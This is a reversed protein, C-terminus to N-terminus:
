SLLDRAVRALRQAACALRQACAAHCVEDLNGRRAHLASAAFTLWGM